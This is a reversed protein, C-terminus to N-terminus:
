IKNNNNNIKIYFYDINRIFYKNEKYNLKTINTNYEYNYVKYWLIFYYSTYQISKM